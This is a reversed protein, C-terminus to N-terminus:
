DHSTLAHTLQRESASDYYPIFYLSKTICYIYLASSILRCYLVVSLYVSQVIRVITLGSNNCSTSSPFKRKKFYLDNKYYTSSIVHNMYCSGTSSTVIIYASIKIRRCWSCNQYYCDWCIIKRPPVSVTCRPSRYETSM